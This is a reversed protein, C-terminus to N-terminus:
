NEAKLKWNSIGSHHMRSREVLEQAASPWGPFRCTFGHHLLAGPAVRRSKLLLETETRLLFAGVALLWAPAPLGVRIGWANRLQSLFEANPLPQPSALNVPGSIEDHDILFSVARVFDAVHIWCMYQGGIGWAGGLGLRGLRLIPFCAGGLEPSMVMAARLAVKRTAPTQSSFFAQEWQRAVEINFRWSPPTDPENGGFEGCHEDMPQGFTHCYITATSANLWLRPPRRIAQIASGLVATSDVRSRLIDERNKANYRCDVSRGALNVLVDTYELEEMWCGLTRGNWSLEKWSASSTAHTPRRTLITVAHGQALFHRTLLQGLHGLGGPILIRLPQANRITIDTM